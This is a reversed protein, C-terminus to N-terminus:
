YFSIGSTNQHGVEKEIINAIEAHCTAPEEKASERLCKILCELYDERKKPLEAVLSDVKDANTTTQLTLKDHLDTTIMHYKNLYPLLVSVNLKRQLM